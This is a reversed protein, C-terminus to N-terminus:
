HYKQGFAKKKAIMPAFAPEVILGMLVLTLLNKMKKVKNNQNFYNNFGM